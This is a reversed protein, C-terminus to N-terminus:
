EALFHSHKLSNITPLTGGIFLVYQLSHSGCLSSLHHFGCLEWAHNAFLVVVTVAPRLRSPAHISFPLKLLNVVLHYNIPASRLLEKYRRIGPRPTKDSQSCVECFEVCLTFNTAENKLFCFDCLTIVTNLQLSL